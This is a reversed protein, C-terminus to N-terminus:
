PRVLLVSAESTRWCKQWTAVRALKRVGRVRRSTGFGEWGGPDGSVLREVDTSSQQETQNGIVVKVATHTRRLAVILSEGSLM